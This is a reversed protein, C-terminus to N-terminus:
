QQVAIWNVDTSTTGSLADIHRVVITFSAATISQVSVNYAGSDACGVVRPAATFRGAPFAINAVTGTTSSNVAVTTKGSAHAGLKTDIDAALNRIQLALSALTDSDDPQRYGLRTTTTM